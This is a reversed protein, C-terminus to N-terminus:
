IPWSAFDPLPGDVTSVATPELQGTLTAAPLGTPRGFPSSRLWLTRETFWFRLMTVVHSGLDPIDLVHGECTLLGAWSLHVGDWDAAVRNWDPMAVRVDFRAAAGASASAVDAVDSRHQNRGPLEWGSHRGSVDDPYAAVLRRWDDPCDIEFVRATSAVEFRWRHIRGFYMEWADVLTEHLEPPPATVTWASRWPWEGCCYSGHGHGHQSIHLEAASGGTEDNPTNWWQQASREIGTALTSTFRDAIARAIGARQPAFRYASPLSTLAMPNWPGAIQDAAEVARTLLNELSSTAVAIEAAEVASPDSDTLESFPRRNSREIAELHQLLAVGAPAVLLLTSFEDSTVM